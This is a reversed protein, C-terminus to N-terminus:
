RLLHLFEHDIRLARVSTEHDRGEPFGFRALDIGYQLDQLAEQRLRLPFWADFGELDMLRQRLGLLEKEIFDEAIFRGEACMLLALMELGQDLSLRQRLKGFAFAALMAEDSFNRESVDLGFEALM